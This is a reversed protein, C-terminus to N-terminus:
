GEFLDWIRKAFVFAMVEMGKKKKKLTILGIKWAQKEQYPEM